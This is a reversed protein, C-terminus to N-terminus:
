PAAILRVSHRRGWDVRLPRRPVGKWEKKFWNPIPALGRQWSDVTYCEPVHRRMAVPYDERRFVLFVLIVLDCPLDRPPGLVTTLALLFAARASSAKGVALLKVVSVGSLLGMPMREEIQSSADYTAFVAIVDATATLYLFCYAQRKRM